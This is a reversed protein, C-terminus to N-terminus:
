LHFTNDLVGLGPKNQLQRRLRTGLCPFSAIWNAEPQRSESFLYDPTRGGVGAPREPCRPRGPRAQRNEPEAAHRRSSTTPTDVRPRRTGGALDEPSEAAHSPPPPPPPQEPRTQPETLPTLLSPGLPPRPTLTWSHGRRTGTPFGAEGLANKPQADTWGDISHQRQLSLPSWVGKSDLLSM